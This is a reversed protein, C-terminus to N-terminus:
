AVYDVSNGNLEKLAETMDSYVPEDEIEGGIIHRSRNHSNQQQTQGDTDGDNQRFGFEAVTVEINEVKIGQAEMTERLVQMQSEIAEKAIENRTTLQATMVGNKSTVQLDVKGLQEPYLQIEMSTSDPRINIKVQDIIQEAISYIDQFNVPAETGVSGKVVAEALRHLFAAAQGSETQGQGDNERHFLEHETEQSTQTKVETMMDLIDDNKGLSDDTRVTESNMEEQFQIVVEKIPSELPIDTEVTEKGLLYESLKEAVSDLSLEAFDLGGDEILSAVNEQLDVLKGYLDEDTLLQESEAGTLKLFLQQLHDPQILEAPQLQLETAAEEVQTETVQLLEQLISIMQGILSIFDEFMESQQETAEKPDEAVTERIGPSEGSTHETDVVEPRSNDEIRKNVTDTQKAEQPEGTKSPQNKQIPENQAAQNERATFVSSFSASANKSVSVSVSATFVSTISSVTQVTM